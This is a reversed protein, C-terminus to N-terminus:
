PKRPVRKWRGLRPDTPAMMEVEPEPPKRKRRWLGTRPNANRGFGFLLRGLLRWPWTLIQGFLSPEWVEETALSLVRDREMNGVKERLEDNIPRLIGAVREGLPAKPEKTAEPAKPPEEVKPGETMLVELGALLEGEEKIRKQLAPLEESSAGAIRARADELFKEHFREFAGPTKKPKTKGGKGKEGATDNEGCFASAFIEIFDSIKELIAKVTPPQGESAAEIRSAAENIVIEALDGRLVHDVPLEQKLKEALGEAARRMQPAALTLAANLDFGLLDRFFRVANDKAATAAGSGGGSGTDAM